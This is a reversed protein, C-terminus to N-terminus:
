LTVWLLINGTDTQVCSNLSVISLLCLTGVSDQIRAWCNELGEFLRCFPFLIQSISKKLALAALAKYTSNKRKSFDKETEATRKCRMM